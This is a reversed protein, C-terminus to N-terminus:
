HLLKLYGESQKAWHGRPSREVAATFCRVAKRRRGLAVYVQGLRYSAESAVYGGVDQELVRSLHEVAKLKSGERAELIGLNLHAPWYNQRYDLAREFNARAEGVRGLQLQAWGLNNHALWPYPYLPDDVLGQAVKIAEEFHAMQIYLGSLNLRAPQNGPDLEIAELLYTEAEELLGKRRHAEGLWHLSEPDKPDLSHAYRLERIAMAARGNALHDLGLNRHAEAKRAVEFLEEDTPGRTACGVALLGVLATTGLCRLQLGRAFRRRVGRM